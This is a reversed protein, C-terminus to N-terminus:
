RSCFVFPIKTRTENRKAGGPGTFVTVMGNFVFIVRHIFFSLFVFSLSNLSAGSIAVGINLAHANCQCSCESTKALRCEEDDIAMEMMASCLFVFTTSKSSRM